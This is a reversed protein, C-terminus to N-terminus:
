LNTGSQIQTEEIQKEQGNSEDEAEKRTRFNRKGNATQGVNRNVSRSKNKRKKVTKNFKNTVNKTEPTSSETYIHKRITEVHQNYQEHQEGEPIPYIQRLVTKYSEFLKDLENKQWSKISDADM